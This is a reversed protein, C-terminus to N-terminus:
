TSIYSFSEIHTEIKKESRLIKTSQTQILPAALIPVLGEANPYPTLTATLTGPLYIRTMWKVLHNTPTHRPNPPTKAPIKISSRRKNYKYRWLDTVANRSSSQLCIPLQLTTHLTVVYVTCICTYIPVHDHCCRWSGSTWVGAVSQQCESFPSMAPNGM